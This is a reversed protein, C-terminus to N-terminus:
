LLIEFLRVKVNDLIDQQKRTCNNEFPCELVYRSNDKIDNPCAAGMNNLGISCDGDHLLISDLFNREYRGAPTMSIKTIMKRDKIINKSTM